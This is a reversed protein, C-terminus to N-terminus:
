DYIIGRNCDVTIYHKGKDIRKNIEKFEDPIEYCQSDCIEQNEIKVENKLYYERTYTIHNVCSAYMQEAIRESNEATKSYHKYHLIEEIQNIYNYRM